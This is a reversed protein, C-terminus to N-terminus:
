QFGGTIEDPERPMRPGFLRDFQKYDEESFPMEDHLARVQDPTITRSTIRMRLVEARTKDDMALVASRNLKVYRGGPVLRSLADERRKVAGGLNMVLLQLNRQSISAYTVASANVSSVDILDAPVGFFRCLEVDSYQMQEIFSAESAKVSVPHYEWDSGTTWVDGSEVSAKFSAKAELAQERSLQKSSNRLIASPVAGNQFWSLAFEQASLGASLALAANTIASMGVPFGPITHQREHWIYKMDEVSGNIRYEVIRTGKIKYSVLEPDVPEIRTPINFGDRAHVIGVNNGFGDLAMQTSYMWENMSMPQGDAIEWPEVLVPPKVGQVAMGNMDQYVHPTMLSVLDARLHRAAWVVSHRMSNKATVRGSTRSYWSRPVTPNAERRAFVSV